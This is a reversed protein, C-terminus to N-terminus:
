SDRLGLVDQMDYLGPSRGLLWQAARLAGEAFVQRSSARHTLELREGPGAFYVTHEGVVDGLRLAHVGVETASRPGVVGVRGHRAAGEPLGREALVIELLRSATGSPADQKRQHHLEVLEVQYEQPLRRAALGVLHFLLNVGISFNGTWVCPVLAAMSRLRERDASAHGTTGLVLPRGTETVAALVRETAEPLSFDVVVDGSRVAAKLDAGRGVAAAIEIDREAAARSVAQGMRGGAGHLVIRM